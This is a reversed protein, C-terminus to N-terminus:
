KPTGGTMHISLKACDIGINKVYCFRTRLQQLAVYVNCTVGGGGILTKGLKTEYTICFCGGYLIFPNRIGRPYIFKYHFM